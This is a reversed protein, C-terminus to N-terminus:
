EIAPGSTTRVNVGMEVAIVNALTTKGLGPPGCLLVHDLPEKRFRAAEIFVRLNEKAKDQGDFEALSRPRLSPENDGDEPKIGATIIRQDGFTEDFEISM